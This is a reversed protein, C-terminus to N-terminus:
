AKPIDIPAPWDVGKTIYSNGLSIPDTTEGDCEVKEITGSVTMKEFDAPNSSGPTGGPLDPNTTKVYVALKIELEKAQLWQTRLCPDVEEKECSNITFFLFATCFLIFRLRIIKM